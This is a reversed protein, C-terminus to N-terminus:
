IAFIKDSWDSWNPAAKYVDVLEAPVLFRGNFYETPGQLTCLTPTRIYVDAKVYNFAENGISTPKGLDIITASSCSYFAHNGAQICEPFIAQELKYCEHFAYTGLIQLKPANIIRLNGRSFNSELKLLEPANFVEILSNKFNDSGIQEVCKFTIEKTLPCDRFAYSGIKKLNPLCVETLKYDYAFASQALTEVNEGYVSTLQRCFALAYSEISTAATMITDVSRDLVKDIDTSPIPVEIIKTVEEIEDTKLKLNSDNDVVKLKIIESM